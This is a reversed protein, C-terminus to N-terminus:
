AREIAPAVIEATSVVPTEQAPTASATAHAKAVEQSPAHAQAAAAISM